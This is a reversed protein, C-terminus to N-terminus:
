GNNYEFKNEDITINKTTRLPNFLKQPWRQNYYVSENDGTCCQEYASEFRMMKMKQSKKVEEETIILCAPIDDCLISIICKNDIGLYGESTKIFHFDDLGTDVIVLEGAVEIIEKGEKYRIKM